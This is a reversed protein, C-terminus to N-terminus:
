QCRGRHDVFLVCRGPQARAKPCRYGAAEQAANPIPIGNPLHAPHSTCEQACREVEEDRLKLAGHTHLEQEWRIIVHEDDTDIWVIDDADIPNVGTRRAIDSTAAALAKNFESIHVPKRCVYEHRMTTITRKDHSAM